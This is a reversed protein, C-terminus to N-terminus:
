AARFPTAAVKAEQGMKAQEGLLASSYKETHRHRRRVRRARPPWRRWAARAARHEAQTPAGHQPAAGRACAVDGRPIRAAAAAAARGDVRGRRRWGLRRRGRRRQQPALAALGGIAPRAPASSPRPSARPRPGAPPQQPPAPAKSSASPQATAAATAASADADADAAADSDADADADASDHPPSSEAERPPSPPQQAAAHAQALAHQVQLSHVSTTRSSRTRLLARPAGVPAGGGGAGAGGGAGPAGGTVGGGRSTSLTARQRPSCFSYEDRDDRPTAPASPAFGAAGGCWGSLEPSVFASSDSFGSADAADAADAADPDAWTTAHAPQLLGGARDGVEVIPPRRPPGKDELDSVEKTVLQLRGRRAAFAVAAATAHAGLSVDLQQQQWEAREKALRTITRVVPGPVFDQVDELPVSLVEVDTEAHWLLQMAGPPTWPAFAAVDGVTHGRSLSSLVLRRPTAAPRAEDTAADSGGLAFVGDTPKSSVASLCARGSIIFSLQDQLPSETLPWTAHRSQVHLLKGAPIARRKMLYALTTLQSSNLPRLAAMERLTAVVHSVRRESVGKFLRNFLEEDFLLMHCHTRAKAGAARPKATIFALEGFGDGPRAIGLEKSKGKGMQMVFTVQGSLVIYFHKGFDGQNFLTEDQVYIKQKIKELSAAIVERTVSAEKFCRMNELHSLVRAREAATWLDPTVNLMLEGVLPQQAPQAM